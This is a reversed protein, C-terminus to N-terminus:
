IFAFSTHEFNGITTPGVIDISTLKGTTPSAVVRLTINSIVLGDGYIFSKTSWDFFYSSIQRPSVISRM